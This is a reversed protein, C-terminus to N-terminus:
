IIQIATRELSDTFTIFRSCGSEIECKNCAQFVITAIAVEGDDDQKKLNKTTKIKREENMPRWQFIKGTAIWWCSSRVSYNVHVRLSIYTYVCADIRLGM